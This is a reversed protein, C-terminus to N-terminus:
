TASGESVKESLKELQVKAMKPRLPYPVSTVSGNSSTISAYGARLSSVAVPGM